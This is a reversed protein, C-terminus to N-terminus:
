ESYRSLDPNIKVIQTGHWGSIKNKSVTIYRMLDDEELDMKALGIILDAEAAKGIKSGEMMTYNLRTKGEADASAQSVGIVACGKGKKATERLRRYLERLREHGSNFKGAIQVKDAQDIFCIDVDLKKIYDEIKDLDWDQVDKFTLRGQARAHFIVKAKETDALIEKKTMGTAASYARVVTRRTSEENGLILVKYGQDIFGKPGVALSVVFATKGTEPTAFIIGFEGHQIGYVYRSLTEINFKPRNTDDMDNKLEDIDLTTPPGFEDIQFGEEYLAMVQQIKKFAHPNGEKLELAITAVRSGVDRQWLKEIVDGAVADSYPEELDILSIVDQVDSKEARTSVPNDTEWIKYIERITLDQEFKAHAKEITTYISRIEDTFLKRHLKSKNQEYFSNRMLSKLIATDLM